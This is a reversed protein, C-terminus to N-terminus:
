PAARSFEHMVSCVNQQTTDDLKGRATYATALPTEVPFPCIPAMGWFEPKSAGPQEGSKM